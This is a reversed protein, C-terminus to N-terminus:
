QKEEIMGNSHVIYRATDITFPCDGEECAEGGHGYTICTSDNEFSGEMEHWYGGEAHLEAIVFQDILKGEKSYTLYYLSTMYNQVDKYVTAAFVGNEFHPSREISFLFAQDWIMWRIEYATDLDIESPYITIAEEENQFICDNIWPSAPECKRLYDFTSLRFIGTYNKYKFNSLLTDPNFRLSSYDYPPNYHIWPIQYPQLDSFNHIRPLKESPPFLDSQRAMFRKKVPVSKNEATCQALLLSLIFFVVIKM